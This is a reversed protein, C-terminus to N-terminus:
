FTANLGVNWVRARPYAGVDLGRSAPSGNLSNVEPDFGTYNTHIWLNQGTVFLRASQARPVLRRPLKYGLSLMQLRVFSGDEVLTSYLYTKRNANARPISTNTHEPTWRGLVETRENLAGTSNILFANSANVVDNGLSYNLFAELTFPGATFRNTFGGYVTPDAYGVITRDADTIKGDNNVDAIHLEGPVCDLTPRPSSLDCGSAADAGWLGLVKYGYFAGLPQGPMLIHSDGGLGWGWRDAGTTIYKRQGDLAVVENRNHAINFSSTWGFREGRVNVTHIGLEFGRNKISGLNELRNTYGTSLEPVVNLLLDNTRSAYADATLSVRDNWLAVDVGVNVQDTTEWKLDANPALDARPAYGIQVIGGVGTQYGALQPLSAYAGVGQNGTRGYSLRLKADNVLTLPKMFPEESLRWAFAASPFLAWKNNKGFRSSGDRRATVTFLYRDFLNYNARGLYSLLAGETVDGSVGPRRSGTEPRWWQPQEVAFGSAAINTWNFDNKQVTFGGVVDLNGPGVRDRRYALVNENIIENARGQWINAAGESSAGQYIYSPSYGPNFATWLNASVDSKIRLGDLLRELDYEGSVHGIFRTEQRRDILENATAVPNNVFEALTARQIYKGTGPDRVALAPDYVMAALIGRSNGAIQGNEVQSLNSQIRAINMNATARFHTSFERDINLRGAYRRFDTGLIIGQQDMFNGSLLYRTKQDGGSFTLSSNQQPATRLIMKQYDYTSADSVQAATYQAPLGANALAENRLTRYQQANLVSIQRTIEQTGYSTELELRDAGRQGRRTTILIVGNAGRTGYIATASADKLIDISEIDNPNITVLPNQTPDSSSTGQTAPVGDVVYLPESNATISNTGRVRVSVGGGPLGGASIVQVGPAKGQLAGSLTPTPAAPITVDRAGISAVAGTVDARRQTGYGVVVVESLLVAQPVLALNATATGGDTVVVNPLTSPAFGLRQARLQYTGPAVTLVYRGDANTMAAASSGVVTVTADAIPRGTEAVAVTGSIRGQRTQAAAEAVPLSLALLGSVIVWRM